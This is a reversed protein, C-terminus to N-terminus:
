KLFEECNLPIASPDSLLMDIIARNIGGRVLMDVVMASRDDLRALDERVSEKTAEPPADALSVGLVNGLQEYWPTTLDTLDIRALWGKPKIKTGKLEQADFWVTQQQFAPLFRRFRNALVEPPLARLAEEDYPQDLTPEIGLVNEIFSNLVKGRVMAVRINPRDVMLEPIHWGQGWRLLFGTMRDREARVIDSVFNPASVDRLKLDEAGYAAFTPEGGAFEIRTPHFLQGHCLLAPHWSLARHLLRLEATSTGILTFYPTTLRKQDDFWRAAPRGPVPKGPSGDRHTIRWDEYDPGIISVDEDRFPRAQREGTWYTDLIDRLSDNHASLKRAWFYPQRALYDVHDAHYIVPIGYDSFQYLTLTRSVISSDPVVHRVMTNFFVEDPVLTTKFFNVIDPQRGFEMIKKLTSWTLVWWQSGIHPIMDRVFPRKIELYEQLGLSIDTLLPQDRWNFFWHYIYREKQPGTKVWHVEDSPVSEIFEDGKNRELFSLLDASSRIPYDMCSILYVYDPEWGAAEIEDLCNLAGQVVGWEGWGVEVRRAFRVSDNGAFADVLGQYSARSSKLDYHVAVCHGQAVLLRVIREVLPGFKHALLAFAVKM